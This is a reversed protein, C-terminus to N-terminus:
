PQKRYINLEAYELGRSLIKFNIRYYKYPTQNTLNGTYTGHLGFAYDTVADLTTWNIKDNSGEFDWDKSYRRTPRISYKSVAYAKDDAFSFIVAHVNDSATSRFSAISRTDKDIAEYINTTPNSMRLNELELFTGPTVTLDTYDSLYVTKCMQRHEPETIKVSISNLNAIDDTKIFLELLNKGTQPLINELIWDKLLDQVPMQIPDSIKVGNLFPTVEVLGSASLNLALETDDSNYFESSLYIYNGQTQPQSLQIVDLGNHIEKDETTITNGNLVSELKDTEGISFKRCVCGLEYSKGGNNMISGSIFSSDNKHIIRKYGPYQVYEVDSNQFADILAPNRSKLYLVDQTLLFPNLNTLSIKQGTEDYAQYEIGDLSLNKFIPVTGAYNGPTLVVIYEKGAVTNKEFFAVLVNELSDVFGTLHSDGAMIYNLANAMVAFHSPILSGTNLHTTWSSSDIAYYTRWPIGCTLFAGGAIDVLLRRILEYPDNMFILETEAFKFNPESVNNDLYDRYMKINSISGYEICPYPYSHFSFGDMYPLGGANITDNLYRTKAAGMNCLIAPIDPAIEKMITYMPRMYNDVNYDAPVMGNVENKFEIVALGNDKYRALFERVFSEEDEKKAYWFTEKDNYALIEEETLNPGDVLEHRTGQMYGEIAIWDMAKTPGNNYIRSLNWPGIKLPEGSIEGQFGNGFKHAFGYQVDFYEWFRKHYQPELRQWTHLDRIVTCGCLHNVRMQERYSYVGHSTYAYPDAFVYMGGTMFSAPNPYKFLDTLVSFRQKAKAM